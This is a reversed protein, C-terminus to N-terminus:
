RVPPLVARSNQYQNVINSMFKPAHGQLLQRIGPGFEHLLNNGADSGITSGFNSFTSSTSRTWYPRYANDVTVSSLVGLLYSTNLKGKGSDDRTVFFRSAAYAARGMLSNSPSPQYSVKGRRQSPYLYKDFFISSDKQPFVSGELSALNVQPGFPVSGLELKRAVDVNVAASSPTSRPVSRDVFPHSLALAPQVLPADPLNGDASHSGDGPREVSLRASQCLAGCAVLVLFSIVPATRKM